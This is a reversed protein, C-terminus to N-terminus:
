NKKKQKTKNKKNKKQKNKPTNQKITTTTTQNHVPRKIRHSVDGWFIGNAITGM